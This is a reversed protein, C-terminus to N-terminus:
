ITSEAVGASGDTSRAVRRTKNGPDNAPEMSVAHFSRHRVNKSRTKPDDAAERMPDHRM